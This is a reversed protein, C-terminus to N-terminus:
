DVRDGKLEWSDEAAQCIADRAYQDVQHNTNLRYLKLQANRSCDAHRKIEPQMNM